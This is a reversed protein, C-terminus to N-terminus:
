SFIIHLVMTSYTYVSFDPTALPILDGEMSSDDSLDFM